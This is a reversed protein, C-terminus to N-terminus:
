LGENEGLAHSKKQLFRRVAPDTELGIARGYASQAKAVDGLRSLLEARAAWYPQYQSLRIDTVHDLAKLGDEPSGTEAVAIARNIAVVPSGRVLQLREASAATVEATLPGVRVRVRNGIAVVSAVSGVVTNLASEVPAVHAIAIEWPYVVLSVPGEADDVSLLREGGDLEVETLGDPGPRAVGRLVNGGALSAVFAFVYWANLRLAFRSRGSSM